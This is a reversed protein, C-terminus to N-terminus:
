RRLLKLYIFGRLSNPLIRVAGRVLINEIFQVSSIFKMKRFENQLQVEKKFFSLGGRRQFMERGTRAYVLIEPLNYIKIGKDLMRIWLYYDENLLFPQYNGAKIVSSKKYMVTMHNLPCRKKAYEKIEEYDTPVKRTSTIDTYHEDFEGIWTGLVEADPQNKFFQIQKEFRNPHCIDDTDMRAIIENSCELVGRQLALGLGMNKELPIRKVISPFRMEFDDLVSYLEETLKGDEILVIENPPLSQNITSELSEKLFLPKEKHYVSMLVSFKM